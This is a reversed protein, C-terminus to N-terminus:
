AIWVPLWKDTGTRIEPMQTIETGSASKVIVGKSGM